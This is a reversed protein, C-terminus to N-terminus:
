SLMGFDLLVIGTSGLSPYLWFRHDHHGVLESFVIMPEPRIEGM